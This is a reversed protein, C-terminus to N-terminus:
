AFLRRWDRQPSGRRPDARMAHRRALEAVLLAGGAAGRLTNHTLLVFKWGLLPCPRLRGILTSM